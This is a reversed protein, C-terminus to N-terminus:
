EELWQKIDEDAEAETLFEGRRYQARAEEVITKERENFHYVGLPRDSEMKNLLENLLQENDSQQIHAILSTKLNSLTM